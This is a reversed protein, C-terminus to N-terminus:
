DGEQGVARRDRLVTPIGLDVEHQNRGTLFGGGKTERSLGKQLNLWDKYRIVEDQTEEKEEAASYDVNNKFGTAVVTVQVQDDMM